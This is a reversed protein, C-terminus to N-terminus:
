EIPEGQSSDRLSIYDLDWRKLILANKISMVEDSIVICDRLEIHQWGKEKFLKKQAMAFIKTRAQNVAREAEEGNRFTDYLLYIDLIYPDDPSEHKIEEGDDIDFFVAHIHEGLPSLIKKLGEKLGSIKLKDEFADPFSPRGYRGALWHRLTSLNESPLKFKGDPGFSGFLKKPVRIKNTALMEIMLEGNPVVFPLHLRRPNKGHTYIGGASEVPQGIVLEVDPEIEPPQLIDCDHSVVVFIASLSDLRSLGMEQIAERTLVHGQRWPTDRKWDAM